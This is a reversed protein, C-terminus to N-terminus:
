SIFVGALTVIATLVILAVSVGDVGFDFRINLPTFWVYSSTFLMDATNGSAREQLFAFLICFAAVFQLGMGVASVLRAQEKGKSFMLALITLAPIILILLLINM